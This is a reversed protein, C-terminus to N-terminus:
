KYKPFDFSRNPDMLIKGLKRNASRAAKFMYVKQGKIRMNFKSWVFDYIYGRTHPNEHFIRTGTGRSLKWNVPKSKDSLSIKRGKRIFLKGTTYPLHLVIGGNLMKDMMMKNFDHCIDRYTLFHTDKDGTEKRYFQHMRTVGKAKNTDPKFRM